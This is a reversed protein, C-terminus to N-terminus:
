NINWRSSELYRLYKNESLNALLPNEMAQQRFQKYINLQAPELREIIWKTWNGNKDKCQMPTVSQTNETPRVFKQKEYPTAQEFPSQDDEDVGDSYIDSNPQIGRVSQPRKNRLTCSAM